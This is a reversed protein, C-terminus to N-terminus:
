RNSWWQNHREVRRRERARAEKRKARSMRKPYTRLAKRILRAINPNSKSKSKILDDISIMSCRRRDLRGVSQVFSPPLPTTICDFVFAKSMLDRHEPRVTLDPVSQWKYDLMKTAWEPTPYLSKEYSHEYRESPPGKVTVEVTEALALLDTSGLTLTDKTM